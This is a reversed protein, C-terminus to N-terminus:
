LMVGSLTKNYQKKETTNTAKKKEQYGYAFYSYSDGLHAHINHEPISGNTNGTLQRKMQWSSFMDITLICKDSIRIQSM